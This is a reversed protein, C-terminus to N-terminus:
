AFLKERKNEESKKASYNEIIQMLSRVPDNPEANIKLNLLKLDTSVTAGSKTKPKKKDNM